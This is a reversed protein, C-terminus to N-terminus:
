GSQLAMSRGGAPLKQRQARVSERLLENSDVPEEAASTDGPKLGEQLAGPTFLLLSDGSGFIQRELASDYQPRCGFAPLIWLSINSMFLFITINKLIQRKRGPTVDLRHGGALKRDGTKHGDSQAPVTNDCSKDRTEFGRNVFGEYPPITISFVQALADERHSRYLSEVTFLNQVCKELVLLLAYALSTWSFGVSSSGSAVLAVISCWCMLWSGLSSALLLETDLTRAPNHGTDMPRDELRYVLLGAASACCMCALMTVGYCYFMFTTHLHTYMSAEAPILYVVLVGLSCALALLGALPGMLLGSSHTRAPKRNAHRDLTRGINKWMVFLMASAFIHYEINFPSLYYLSSSFVSCVRTTCNCEPEVEVATLNTYGLATLRRNHNYLFHEAETMVGNCWLLLNTFVAHIVGFREFTEYKKIVDKIHFWLFHVQSITHLAHIIPYVGFVASVCSHYGVYYGIRFADMILSLLALITLGGRIWSAGAHADREPAARRDRERRIIYALMWCIQLMMLASLLALLTREELAPLGLMVSVGLLLLNSGYQASLTEAQKRPLKRRLGAKLRSALRRPAASSSSSGPSYRNLWMADAGGNEMAGAARTERMWSRRPGAIGLISCASLTLSLTTRASRDERASHTAGTRRQEPDKARCPEPTVEPILKVRRASQSAELMELPEKIKVQLEGPGRQIFMLMVLGMFQTFLLVPTLLSWVPWLAVTLSCSAGIFAATAVAPLAPFEQEYHRIGKFWDLYVICFLALSVCLALMLLAASFWGSHIDPHELIVSFFDLYYTLAVAALIWFISHRNFGSTSKEKVSEEPVPTLQEEPEENIKFRRRLNVIESSDAMVCRHLSHFTSHVSRRHSLHSVPCHNKQNLNQQVRPAQVQNPLFNLFKLLKEQTQILLAGAPRRVSSRLSSVTNRVQAPTQDASSSEGYFSQVVRLHEAFTEGRTKKGACPEAEGSEVPAVQLARTGVCVRVCVCARVCVVQHHDHNQATLMQIRLSRLNCSELRYLHVDNSTRTEEPPTLAEPQGRSCLFQLKQPHLKWRDKLVRFKPNSSIKKNFISLLDEDSRFNREGSFSHYELLVKKRLKKIALGDEPADRLVAKITGKWNFRGASQAESVQIEPEEGSHSEPEEVEHNLSEACGEDKRKKKRKKSKEEPNQGNQEAKRKKMERNQEEECKRKKRKGNKRDEENSTGNNIETKDDMLEKSQNDGSCTDSSLIEWVQELTHPAYIKLCCKMWNEFKARKRPLNEFGTMQQLVQQLKPDLGPRQLAEQVRQIWQQQKVDGKSAKAQFGRGGYKQDESICRIHSKYADGCFDKGCDICSLVSCSHCRLLHKEVQAKKLSEGCSDCTFFVMRIIVLNRQSTVPAAGSGRGCPESYPGSMRCSLSRTSIPPKKTAPSLKSVARTCWSALVLVEATFFEVWIFCSNRGSSDAPKGPLAPRHEM